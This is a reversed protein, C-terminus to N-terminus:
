PFVDPLAVALGALSERLCEGDAIRRCFPCTTAHLRSMSLLLTSCRRSKDYGIGSRRAM